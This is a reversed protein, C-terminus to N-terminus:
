SMAAVKFQAFIDDLEKANNPEWYLNKLDGLRKALTM